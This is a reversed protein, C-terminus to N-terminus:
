NRSKITFGYVNYKGETGSQGLLGNIEESSLKDFTMSNTVKKTFMLLKCPWREKRFGQQAFFKQKEDVLVTVPDEYSANLRIVDGNQINLLEGIQITSRGLVAKVDLKTGQVNKTLAEMEHKEITKKQTALWHRASLKPLVKELGVYPLCIIITGDVDGIKVQLSVLAVTENSSSTTLFQPNVEIETLDPTLKVVSSWAEQFCELAKIYVRRIVSLEIETLNNDNDSIIGQGGLMRDFMVSAIDPSFEMVMSGHLPDAKFVGLLSQNRVNGIFDEYTFEEVSFVNIEVVTRLQTSFYSTLLRAFNEHIRNLTRIQDHSFRFAKRFDYNQVNRESMDQQLGKKSISSLITEISETSLFDEM